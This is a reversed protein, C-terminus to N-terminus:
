GFVIGVGDRGVAAATVGGGAIVLVSVVGVVFVDVLHFVVVM